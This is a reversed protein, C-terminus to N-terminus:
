HPGSLGYVVTPQWHSLYGMGLALELFPYLYAYPRCPKASLDDMQFGDAFGEMSFFKFLSFVVLFYGMFDHMWTM